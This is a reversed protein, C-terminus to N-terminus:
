RRILLYLLLGFFASSAAIAGIMPLWHQIARKAFEASKGLKRAKKENRKQEHAISALRAEEARERDEQELADDLYRQVRFGVYIARARETSGEASALAKAWLGPLYEGADVEASARLYLAEEIARASAARRHIQRM